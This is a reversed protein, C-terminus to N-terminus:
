GCIDCISASPAAQLITWAGKREKREKRSISRSRFRFQLFDQVEVRRFHAQTGSGRVDFAGGRRQAEARSFPQESRRKREKQARQSEQTLRISPNPNRSQQGTSCDESKKNEQCTEVLGHGYATCRCLVLFSCGNDRALSAFLAFLPMGRCCTANQQAPKFLCKGHRPVEPNEVASTASPRLHLRRSFRGLEKASKANKALFPDLDSDSSYSIKSKWVASIRKRGAAGGM